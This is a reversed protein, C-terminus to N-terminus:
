SEESMRGGCAQILWIFSGKAFPEDTVILQIKLTTQDLIQANWWFWQREGATLWFLWNSLSWREGWHMREEITLSLFRARDEETMEPSCSRTFFSPLHDLWFARNTHDTVGYKLVPHLTLRINSLVTQAPIDCVIVYEYLMPPAEM